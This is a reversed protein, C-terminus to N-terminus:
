GHKQRTSERKNKTRKPKPRTAKGVIGGGGLDTTNKCKRKNIKKNKLVKIISICSLTQTVLSENKQRVDIKM